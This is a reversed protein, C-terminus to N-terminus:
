VCTRVDPIVASYPRKVPPTTLAMVLDPPLLNLPLQRVFKTLGDQVMVVGSSRHASGPTITGVVQRGAGARGSWSCYTLSPVRPPGITRSLNHNKPAIRRASVLSAVGSGWVFM